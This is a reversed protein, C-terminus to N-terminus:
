GHAFLVGEGVPGIEIVRHGDAQDYLFRRLTRDALDPRAGPGDPWPANIPDDHFALAQRQVIDFMVDHPRAKVRRQHMVGDVAGRDTTGIKFRRRPPAPRQVRLQVKHRAGIHVMWPPDGDGLAPQDDRADIAPEANIEVITFGPDDGM